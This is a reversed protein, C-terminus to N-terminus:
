PAKSGEKHPKATAGVIEAVRKALEVNILGSRNMGM